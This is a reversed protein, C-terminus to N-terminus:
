FHLRRPRGQGRPCMKFDKAKTEFIKPRSAELGRFNAQGRSSPLVIKYTTSIKATGSFNKPLGKKRKKSIVQFFKKFVKQKKKSIAQFFIKSSKKYSLVKAQTRPRSCEQGQGQSLTQGRFPQGQGQGRIKKQTRPRSGQTRSEM